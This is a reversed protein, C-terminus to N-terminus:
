GEGGLGARRRLQETAARREPALFAAGAASGLAGPFAAGTGRVGLGRGQAVPVAAHRQLRHKPSGLAACSHHHQPDQASCLM